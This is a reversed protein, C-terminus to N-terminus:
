VHITKSQVEVAKKVFIEIGVVGNSRDDNRQFIEEGPNNPGLSDIQGKISQDRHGLDHLLPITAHSNWLRGSSKVFM